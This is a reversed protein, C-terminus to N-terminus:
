KLAKTTIESQPLSFPTSSSININIPVVSSANSNYIILYPDSKTSLFNAVSMAEDYVYQIEEDGPSLGICNTIEAGDSVRLCKTRKIRILGTSLTNINDMRLQTMAVSESGSM